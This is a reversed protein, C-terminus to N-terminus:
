YFSEMSGSQAAEVMWIAGKLLAAVAQIFSGATM